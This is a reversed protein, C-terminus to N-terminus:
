FQIDTQTRQILPRVMPLWTGLIQGPVLHSAHTPCDPGVSNLNFACTATPGDGAVAKFVSLPSHIRDAIKWGRSHEGTM